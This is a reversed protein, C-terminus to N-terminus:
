HGGVKREPAVLPNYQALYTFAYMLYCCVFVLTLSTKTVGDNPPGWSKGYLRGPVLNVVVSLAVMLITAILVPSGTINADKDIIGNCPSQGTQCSVGM